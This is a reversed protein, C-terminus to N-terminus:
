SLYLSVRGIRVRPLPADWGGQVFYVRLTRADFDKRAALGLFLDTVDLKFSMGHGVREGETRSVQEVGFLGLSGALLEPHNEPAAGAPVNLYVELPPSRRECTVNDVHLVVKRRPGPSLLAPGTPPHIAFSIETRGPGVFFPAETAGVMEPVPPVAKRPNKPDSPPAQM